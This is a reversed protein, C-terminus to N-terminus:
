EGLVFTRKKTKGSLHEEFTDAAGEPCRALFPNLGSNNYVEWIRCGDVVAILRSRKANSAQVEEPTSAECGALLPVLVVALLMLCLTPFKLRDM